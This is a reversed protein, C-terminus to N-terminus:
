MEGEEFLPLTGDDQKHQESPLYWKVRSSSVKKNTNVGLIKHACDPGYVQGAIVAWVKSIPKHCRYCRM